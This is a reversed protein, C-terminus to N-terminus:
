NRSSTWSFDVRKSPSDEKLFWEQVYRVTAKWTSISVLMLLGIYLRPRHNTESAQLNKRRFCAPFVNKSQFNLVFSFGSVIRVKSLLPASDENPNPEIEKKKFNKDLQNEGVRRRLNEMVEAEERDSFLYFNISFM